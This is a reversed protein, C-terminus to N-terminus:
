IGNTMYAPHHPSTDDFYESKVKRRKSKKKKKRNKRFTDLNKELNEFGHNCSDCFIKREKQSGKKMFSSKDLVTYTMKKDFNISKKMKLILSNRNSNEKKKRKKKKRKRMELEKATKIWINDRYANKVFISRKRAGAPELILPELPLNPEEKIEQLSLDGIKGSSHEKYLSFVNDNKQHNLDSKERRIGDKTQFSEEFSSINLNEKVVFKEGNKNIEPIYAGSSFLKNNREIKKYIQEEYNHSHERIKFEPSLDSQRLIGTNKETTEVSSGQQTGSIRYEDFKSIYDNRELIKKQSSKQMKEIKSDSLKNQQISELLVGSRERSSYYGEPSFSGRFPDIYDHNESNTFNQMNQIKNQNMNDLSRRNLYDSAGQIQIRHEETVTKAAKLPSINVFYGSSKVESPSNEIGFKLLNKGSNQQYQQLIKKQFSEFNKSDSFNKLNKEYFRKEESEFEKSEEEGTTGNHVIFQNFNNNNKKQHIEQFLKIEKVEDNFNENSNLNDDINDNNNNNDEYDYEDFGMSSAVSVNQIKAKSELDDILKKLQLKEKELKKREIEFNENKKSVTNKLNELNIKLNEIIKNKEELKKKFIKLFLDKENEGNIIEKELKHKLEKLKKDHNLINLETNKEEFINKM